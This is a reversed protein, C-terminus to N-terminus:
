RWTYSVSLFARPGFVDYTEPFTNAQEQQDGLLTVKEDFINRIGLNVDISEAFEYSVTLDVYHADDIKPVVLSAPDVGNNEIDEDKPGAIYRYLMSLGLPGTQWTLRTNAKYESFADNCNNQGFNGACEFVTDLGVVPTIEYSDLYTSRFDVILTSGEGFLGADFDTVYNVNFDIGSTEINAINENLVQVVDVNGDPRRAFPQGGSTSVAQCFPSSADQVQNFCIDLVNGVSGGLVDIADEIQINFYDLTIDLGDLPRIVAGLTFTDSEEENLDPNGGFIGEIQSNAQTFVGVQSPAVGSQVCLDILTQSPSPGGAAGGASCPDTAGPFGNAQGQFLEGVNPARVARQFGARFRVQEVPAWRLAGAFSGVSGINSYDSARGALWVGVEQAGTKGSILPVDIEGFVEDVEFSGATAEGANFGLVDGSALFEDPRFASEDERREVGFAVMMSGAADSIAGLEGTVTANYVKQDISTVNAAGVNIFDVAAESINGAGFINLPACGGSSNQCTTGTDDVLVAQRFRTESVDNNLLESADLRSFSVYADYGWRDTFDGRLGSLLRLGNRSNLAQRSGNEVMRRGIFPLFTNDDGDIDGDGDTDVRGFTVQNGESDFTAPVGLADQVDAGFFPSDPNVELSGVFAPTPALEQDVKNNVAVIEGYIQARDTIDYHAMAMTTFREQPLQLFNDPAYNFRDDPDVFPAGAGNPEFRGLTFEDGSGAVGDPDITPGGFVRTGPIGSSGGPVLAPNGNADTGETLAFFSFDRDDQFLPERNAYGAYVVANGRGGAFNGGITIDLNYKEADGGDDIDYLGTIQVGEFDQKLQFNVVGALADSGYVASSGGTLIDVREILTGPITNLDVVGFQTSQIYRRGNVLVLTRSTGLGRLDVRATGDGPNNSSPGFSPVMNPLEALKQEININGSLAFEEADVTQVPSVADLDIRQIRSGTVTIEELERQEQAPATSAGVAGASLLALKIASKLKTNNKM